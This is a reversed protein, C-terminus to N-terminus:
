RSIGRTSSWERMMGRARFARYRWLDLPPLFSPADRRWRELVENPWISHALTDHGKLGCRRITEWVWATPRPKPIVAGQAPTGGLDAHNVRRSPPPSRKKSEEIDQRSVVQGDRRALPGHDKLGPWRGPNRWCWRLSGLPARYRGGCYPGGGPYRSGEPRM